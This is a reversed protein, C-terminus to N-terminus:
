EEWAYFLKCLVLQLFRICIIFNFILYLTFTDSKVLNMIDPNECYDRFYEPSSEENIEKNSLLYYFINNALKIDDINYM